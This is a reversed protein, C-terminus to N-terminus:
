RAVVLLQVSRWACIGNSTITCSRLESSTPSPLTFSNCLQLFALSFCGPVRSLCISSAVHKRVATESHLQLALAQWSQSHSGKSRHCRCNDHKNTRIDVKPTLVFKHAPLRLMTIGTTLFLEGPQRPEAPLPACWLMRWRRASQIISSDYLTTLCWLTKELAPPLERPEQAVLYPLVLFNTSTM